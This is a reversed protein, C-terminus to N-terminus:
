PHVSGAPGEGSGVSPVPSGHVASGVGSCSQGGRLLVTWGQAASGAGSCCQGGRFLEAWGQVAGRIHLLVESESLAAIFM